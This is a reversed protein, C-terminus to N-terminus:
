WALLSHKLKDTCKRFYVSYKSIQRLCIIFNTGHIAGVVKSNLIQRFMCPRNAHLLIILWDKPDKLISRNVVFSLNEEVCLPRKSCVRSENVELYLIELREKPSLNRKGHYLIPLAQDEKFFETERRNEDERTNEQEEQSQDQLSDEEGSSHSEADSVTLDLVERKETQQVDMEFISPHLEM